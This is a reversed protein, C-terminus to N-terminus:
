QAECDKELFGKYGGEPNVLQGCLSTDLGYEMGSEQVKEM